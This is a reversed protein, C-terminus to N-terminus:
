QKGAVPKNNPKHRCKSYHDQGPVSAAHVRSHVTAYFLLTCADLFPALDISAFSVLSPTTSLPQRSAPQAVGIAPIASVEHLLKLGMAM